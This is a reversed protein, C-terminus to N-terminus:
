NGRRLRLKELRKRGRVVVSADGTSDDVDLEKILKGEASFTGPRNALRTEQGSQGKMKKKKLADAVLQAGAAPTTREPAPGGGGMARLQPVLNIAQEGVWAMIHTEGRLTAAQFRHKGDIVIVQPTFGM